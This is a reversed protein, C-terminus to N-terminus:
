KVKIYLRQICPKLIQLPTAPCLNMCAFEQSIAGLYVVRFHSNHYVIEVTLRLAVIEMLM